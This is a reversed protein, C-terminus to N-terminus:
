MHTLEYKDGNHLLKFKTGAHDEFIAYGHNYAEDFFVKVEDGNRYMLYQIGLEASPDYSVIHGHLTTEM